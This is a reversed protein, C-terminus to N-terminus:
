TIKKNIQNSEIHPQPRTKDSITIQYMSTRRDCTPVHRYAVSAMVQDEGCGCEKSFHM